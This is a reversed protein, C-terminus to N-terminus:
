RCNCFSMLVEMVWQVSHSNDLLKEVENANGTTYVSAGVVLVSLVLGCELVHWGGYASGGYNYWCCRTLTKLVLMVVVLVTITVVQQHQVPQITIVVLVSTTAHTHSGGSETISVNHHDQQFIKFNLYTRNTDIWM